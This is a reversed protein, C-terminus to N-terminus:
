IYRNSPYLLLFLSLSILRAHDTESEWIAVVIASALFDISVDYMPSLHRWRSSEHHVNAPLNLLLLAALVCSM